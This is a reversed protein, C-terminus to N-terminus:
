IAQKLLPIVIELRCGKGRSSIINVKGNYFEVRSRINKLGIGKAKETKDFGIGNDTITLVVQDEEGKLQILANAARSYKRINNLQEQVVRYLMLAMQGTPEKGPDASYELKGKVLGGINFDEVLEELVEQLGMENLSPPVLSHSLKRLEEIAQSVYNYSGSILEQQMGPDKEKALGLFIKSTALVQNVNDHLEKGLEHREKEQAEITIETILKQHALKQEALEQLAIEGKKRETIDLSLIFLGKTVPQISLEFWEKRGDPFIFENEIIKTSREQMCRRLIAFLETGEIGPYKEMVTYGAFAEEGSQRNQRVFSHNVFLYKWDYGIVQIGERMNQLLFKYKEEKEIVERTRAEVRRELTENLQRIQAEALNRAITNRYVTWFAFVLLGIMVMKFFSIVGSLRRINSENNAKRRALLQNEENGIRTLIEQSENMIQTGGAVSANASDANFKRLSKLRMQEQRTMSYNNISQGLSDIRAQQGANDRTMSGLQNIYRSTESSSHFFLAQQAYEGSILFGALGSQMNLIGIHIKECVLLVEHTHQVLRSSERLERNAKSMTFFIIFLALIAAALVGAIKEQFSFRIYSLPASAAIGAALFLFMLVGPLSMGSGGPVFDDIINVGSIFGFLITLLAPVFLVLSVEIFLHFRPNHILLFILGVMIFGVATVWNIGSADGENGSRPLKGTFLGAIAPQFHFLYNALNWSGVSLIICSLFVIVKKKVPVPDPDDLVCLVIGAFLFCLTDILTLAPQRPLFSKLDPAHFIWGSLAILALAVTVIGGIRAINKIGLIM